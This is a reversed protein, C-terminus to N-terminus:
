ALKIIEYVSSKLVGVGVKRSFLYSVQRDNRSKGDTDEMVFADGEFLLKVIKEGNPVIILFDDAINKAGTVPNYSQPLQVCPTGEHFKVYGLKNYENKMEESMSEFSGKIKSLAKKTGYIVASQGTRGEVEAVKDNLVEDSYQSVVGKTSVGNYAGMVANYILEGVKGKFSLAVRDILKAWNIRGAMFKDFETYIKVGLEFTRMDVKGNYITQGRFDNTGTAVVSVRFLSEDEIIFEPIDGLATDKVDAFQEFATNVLEGHTASLVESLVRFVKYKNDLFNYPNWEGGCADTIISRIAQEGKKAVEERNLESFNQIQDSFLEYDGTYVGVGIRQLETMKM